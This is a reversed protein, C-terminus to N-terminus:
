SFLPTFQFILMGILGCIAIPPLAPVPKGKLLKQIFYAACLGLLGFCAILMAPWLGGQKASFMSSTLLLPFAIDGGGLISFDRESPKTVVLEDLNINHVTTRLDSAKRPMVFAPLAANQSMKNAMWMMFGFRVALLDYIALVGLLIMVTWPTILYGFVSALSAIAILLAANHLWMRTYCLWTIGVCVGIVLAAQWPLYFVSLIFVGWAFLVAFIARFFFKLAKLPMLFLISVVAILAAFYPLIFLLSSTLPVGPIVEGEPSTTPPQPRLQIPNSIGTDPQSPVYINNDELFPEIRPTIAFMVCQALVFFIISWYVPKFRLKTM